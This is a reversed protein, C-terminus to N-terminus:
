LSVVSCSIISICYISMLIGGIASPSMRWIGLFNEKELFEVNFREFYKNWSNSKRKLIVGLNLRMGPEGYIIFQLAWYRGAYLVWWARLKGTIAGRLLVMMRVLLLAWFAVDSCVHKEFGPALVVYFYCITEVRLKVGVSLVTPIGKFVGLLWAIELPSDTLSLWDFSSLRHLFPFFIGFWLGGVWRMKRRGLITGPTQVFM